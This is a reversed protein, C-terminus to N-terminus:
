KSTAAIIMAKRRREESVYDILLAVVLLVGSAVIIWYENARLVYLMNEFVNLLVLAIFAGGISGSGGRFAVGGLISASIVRFDFGSQLISTPSALKVQATYFLGGLSALVGNNVYLIMRVRDPNLGSLRAASANGGCMFISRGFSTRSLIFQYIIMIAAAILFMVPIFGFVKAEGLAIVGRRVVQINNGATMINCVGGYITTMGVTAIFPPFKLINILFTNILGLCAGMVLAIAFIIGWHLQTNQCMWAFVMSCIGAQGAVSLDINGGILILALGCIMCSQIVLKYFISLLNGNALFGRSFMASFPRGDLVGSSLIMTVIVLVILIVLLPAAKHRLM